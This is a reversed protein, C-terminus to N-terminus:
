PAGHLQVENMGLARDLEDVDNPEWPVSFGKWELPVDDVTPTDEDVTGDGTGVRVAATTVAAIPAVALLIYFGSNGLVGALRLAWLAPVAVILGIIAPRYRLIPAFGERMDHVSGNPNRGLGIGALGPLVSALNAFFAGLTAILPLFGMLSAGAMLAGGVAGIGGVVALLLVPLGNVFGFNQPSISRLQMGYIAGGLGAIGASLAFVSLKTGVLDLGLTACAAESSKMALLRRGYRSRRVAVVVVSILAFAVSVLVMQRAPTDFAFGFVKLPAVETSGLEFLSIHFPGLDFDGLNFIWRDLAVAFAATGLALYIGSLRLAPLAILAGVFAPVLFALVLALPNGTAGLHGYILAGIAGFTLTALSIQGAFGILPVLSLAFIAFTFVKAYTTADSTSLTTAMIVGALVALGAFVWSGKWTPMPFYERSQRRGRLRSSPIILLVIFLLIAPAALRLGALNPSSKLYGALYAETCGLIVAGLFTLPLSRLRGIIAAAYANVILLSLTAADLAVNPAILIGGIAALTCGMAWALSSVRNPRVGNLSALSRDDVVARMAVGTRTTRLFLWLAGAVVVAVVVTIAQQGTVRTNLLMFGQNAFFAPFNRSVGPKWVWIALGILGVLLGISVVLKTVESTDELGRMVFTDILIGLLPAIVLVAVALSAWVPWGWGMHMQWYAFACVMGIAGQAFNFIGTTTYTLVLGSAIIAYIAGTSLGVITFTLFKDM